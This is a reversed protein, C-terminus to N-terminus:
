ADKELKAKGTFPLVIIKYHDNISLVTKAAQLVEAGIFPKGSSGFILKGEPLQTATIRVHIFQNKGFKRIFNGAGVPNNLFKGSREWRFSYQNNTLDVQMQVAKGYMIAMQQAYRVDNLAVRAANRQQLDPADDKLRNIAVASMVGIIVVTMVVEILTYGKEVTCKFM